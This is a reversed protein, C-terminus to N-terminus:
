GWRWGCKKRTSMVMGIEVTESEIRDGKGVENETKLGFESRVRVRMEVRRDSEVWLGM